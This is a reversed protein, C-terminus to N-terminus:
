EDGGQTQLFNVSAINRSALTAVVQRENYAIRTNNIEIYDEHGKGAVVIMDNKTSQQWAHLLAQERDLEVHLKQRTTLAGMGKKIDAIIHMPDESRSNDQTLVINDAYQVAIEGMIARKSIDRDGGCGFVCSLLGKTHIRAASLAQRL